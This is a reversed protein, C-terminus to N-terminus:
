LTKIMYLTVSAFSSLQDLTKGNMSAFATWRSFYGQHSCRHGKESNSNVLKSTEKYM